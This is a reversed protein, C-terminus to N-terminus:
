PIVIDYLLIVCLKDSDTRGKSTRGRASLESSATLILASWFANRNERLSNTTHQTAQIDSARGQVCSVHRADRVTPSGVRAILKPLYKISSYHERIKM